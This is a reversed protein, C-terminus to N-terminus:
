DWGVEEYEVAALRSPHPSLAIARAHIDEIKESGKATLERAM